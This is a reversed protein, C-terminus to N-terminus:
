VEECGLLTLHLVICFQTHVHQLDHLFRQRWRPKDGLEIQDAHAQSPNTSQIKPATDTRAKVRLRERFIKKVCKISGCSECSPESSRSRKEAAVSRSTHSWAASDQAAASSPVDAAAGNFCWASRTARTAGLGAAGSAASPAANGPWGCGWDRCKRCRHACAAAAAAPHRGGMVVEVRGEGCRRGCSRGAGSGPGAAHQGRTSWRRM